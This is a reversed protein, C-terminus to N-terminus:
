RVLHWGSLTAILWLILVIPLAFIVGIGAALLALFPWDRWTHRHPAAISRTLLQYNRRNAKWFIDFADGLIPITGVLLGIAVNTLMRLLTIYPVGRVWAAFPIILSLAGALADGLGPILGVIGDIGFRHRHGPHRIGRRASDRALALARGGSSQRGEGLSPEFLPANRSQNRAQDFADTEKRGQLARKRFQKSAVIM